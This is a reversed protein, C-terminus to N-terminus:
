CGSFPLRYGHRGVGADRLMRARLLRMDSIIHRLPSAAHELEGAGQLEIELADLDAGLWAAYEGCDGDESIDYADIPAPPRTPSGVPPPVLKLAPPRKSATIKTKKTSTTKTM